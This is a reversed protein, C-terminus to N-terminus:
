STGDEPHATETDKTTQELLVSIAALDVLMEIVLQVMEALTIRELVLPCQDLM